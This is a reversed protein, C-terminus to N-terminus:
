PSQRRGKRSSSPKEGQLIPTLQSAPLPRGFLYGQGLRCPTSLLFDLEQEEEVGEAIVELGWAQAAHISRRVRDSEQQNLSRAVFPRDLKVSRIPLHELGLISIRGTFDDLTVQIGSEDLEQLCPAIEEIQDLVRGEAVEVHVQQLPLSAAELLRRLHRIRAPSLQRVSLNIALQLSLGAAEWARYQVGVAQLVWEGIPEILGTAEAAALFERPALLGHQPHQWRLLAEVGVVKREALSVIPQYYVEFEQRDLARRLDGELQLLPATLIGGPPENLAYRYAAGGGYVFYYHLPQQNQYLIAQGHREALRALDDLSAVEIVPAAPPESNPNLEVLLSDYKVRNLMAQGRRALGALLWAPVALAALSLVFVGVALRRLFLVPFAKGFLLMTNPEAKWGPLLNIQEAVLPDSKEDERRLYFLLSDFNFTLKPAFTDELLRGAITGRVTVVPAIVLTYYVNRYDTKEQLIEAMSLASCLNVINKASYTQGAFPTEPQILISREWGSREDRVQVHLTYTGNVDANPGTLAYDFNLNLLCSLKPFVPQGSTVQPADYVGSPATATYAFLGHHQYEVDDAALRQLPRSFAFIGLILALFASLGFVFFLIELLAGLRRPTSSVIEPFRPVRRCGIKGQWFARLRQLFSLFRNMAVGNRSSEGATNRKRRAPRLLFIAALGGTTLGVAAGLVPPRRLWQVARGFGPLHIWQKGLIESARPRYSDTWDNNDGQLLFYKGQQAIIRHFIYRQLQPDLYAVAEGVRYLPARRVIVLDGRRFGPEMSNGIILVYAANGGMQQPAFLVWATLTLALLLAALFAQRWRRFANM